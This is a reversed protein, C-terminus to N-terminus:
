LNLWPFAAPFLTDVLFVVSKDPKLFVPVMCFKAQVPLLEFQTVPLDIFFDDVSVVTVSVAQSKNMEADPFFFHNVEPM